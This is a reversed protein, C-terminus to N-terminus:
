RPADDSSSGFAIGEEVLFADTGGRPLEALLSEGDSWEATDAREIGGVTIMDLFEGDLAPPSDPCYEIDAEIAQQATEVLASQVDQALPDAALAPAAVLAAALGVGLALGASRVRPMPLETASSRPVTLTYAVCVKSDGCAAMFARRQSGSMGDLNHVTRSCQSCFDAGERPLARLRLPCPSQIKPYDSM